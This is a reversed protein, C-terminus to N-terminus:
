PLNRGTIAEASPEIFRVAPDAALAELKLLPIRAIISRGRASTSLVLGGSRRISNQLAPTSRRPCRRARPGRM